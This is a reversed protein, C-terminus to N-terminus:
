HHRVLIVTGDTPLDARVVETDLVQHVAAVVVEVDTASMVKVEGVNEQGVAGGQHNEAVDQHRLVGVDVVIQTSQGSITSDTQDRDTTSTVAVDVVEGVKMMIIVKVAPSMAMRSRTNKAMDHNKIEKSRVTLSIMVHIKRMMMSQNNQITSQQNQVLLLFLSRCELLVVRFYHGLKDSHCAQDLLVHDLNDLSHLVVTCLPLLAVSAQSCIRHHCQGVKSCAQDQHDQPLDVLHFHHLIRCEPLDVMLHLPHQLFQVVELIPQRSCFVAERLVVLPQTQVM